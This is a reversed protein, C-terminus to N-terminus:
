ALPLQIELIHLKLALLSLLNLCVLDLKDPIHFSFFAGNKTAQYIFNKLLTFVLIVFVTSSCSFLWHCAHLWIVLTAVQQSHPVVLGSM